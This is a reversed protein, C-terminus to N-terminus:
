GAQRARVQKTHCVEVYEALKAHEYKGDSQVSPIGLNYVHLTIKAVVAREQLRKGTCIRHEVNSRHDPWHTVSLETM